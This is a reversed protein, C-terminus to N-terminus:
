FAKDVHFYTITLGLPNVPIMASPVHDRFAYVVHVTYHSTGLQNDSARDYAVEDFDISARYPPQRLDEISVQNVNVEIRPQSPDELFKQIIGGKKYTDLWGAALNGDLFYLSRTFDDQITYRNRAFFLRAWQSLFYKSEAEQPKYAMSGYNVAQAEGLKDIRIVLPKFNRVMAQTRFALVLTGLCLISLAAVAIRLYSNAVIPSGYQELYQEAAATLKPCNPNAAQTNM